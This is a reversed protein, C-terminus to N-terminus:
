DHDGPLKRIIEVGDARRYSMRLKGIDYSSDDNESALPFPDSGYSADSPRMKDHMPGGVHAENFVRGWARKKSEPAPQSVNTINSASYNANSM